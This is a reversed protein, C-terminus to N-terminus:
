RRYNHAIEPLDGRENDFFTKASKTEEHNIETLAKM